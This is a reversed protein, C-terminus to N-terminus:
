PNKVIIAVLAAVANNHLASVSTPTKSKNLYVYQLDITGSVVNYYCRYKNGMYLVESFHTTGHKQETNLM